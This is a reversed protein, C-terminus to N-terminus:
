TAVPMSYVLMATLVINAVCRDVADSNPMSAAVLPRHRDQLSTSMYRGKRAVQLPSFTARSCHLRQSQNSLSILSRVQSALLDTRPRVLQSVANFGVFLSYPMLLFPGASAPVIVCFPCVYERCVYRAQRSAALTGVQLRRDATVAHDNVVYRVFINARHHNGARIPLPLDTVSRMQSVSCGLQLVHPPTDAFSRTSKDPCTVFDSSIALPCYLCACACQRKPPPLSQLKPITQSNQRNTREVVCHTQVVKSIGKM